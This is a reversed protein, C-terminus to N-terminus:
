LDISVAKFEKRLKELCRARTPGISGIPMELRSSIDDYSPRPEELYLLALLQACSGGLAQVAQRLQGAVETEVVLEEFEAEVAAADTLDLPDRGEVPDRRRRNRMELCQRYAIRYVWSSLREPDRLQGISRSTIIATNQLVEERDDPLIGLRAALALVMRGQDDFFRRWATEDGSALKQVHTARDDERVSM